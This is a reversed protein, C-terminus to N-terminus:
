GEAMSFYLLVPKQSTYDSLSVENGNVSQLRFDPAEDGVKLPENGSGGCAALLLAALSLIGAYFFWKFILQLFKNM